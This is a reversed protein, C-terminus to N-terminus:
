FVLRSGVDSELPKQGIESFPFGGSVHPQVAYSFSNYFELHRGILRIHPFPQNMIVYTGAITIRERNKAELRDYTHQSDINCNFFAQRHLISM